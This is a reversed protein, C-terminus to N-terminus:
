YHIICQKPQPNRSTVTAEVRIFFCDDKLYQCASSINNLDKHSIFDNRGIGAHVMENQWIKNQIVLPAMKTFRRSYHNDDTKQNLLTVVFNGLLSRQLRADCNGKMLYLFVSLHTGKYHGEGNIIVHLCMKYMKDHTYFPDTLWKVDHRKKNDINDIMVIVPCIGNGLNTRLRLEWPDLQVQAVCQLTTEITSMKQQQKDQINKIETAFKALTVKTQEAARKIAAMEEKIRSVDNNLEFLQKQTTTLKKKIALDEETAAKRVISFPQRSKFFEDSATSMYSTSTLLENTVEQNASPLEDKAAAALSQAPSSSLHNYMAKHELPEVNSTVSCNKVQAQIMELPCKQRYAEMDEYFISGAECKNLCPLPLKPCEEKHQDEIFQHEGTDHCYQCNVKHRQCETEVHSALYQRQIMEECENSCKMKEFQDAM